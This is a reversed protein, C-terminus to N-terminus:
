ETRLAAVVSLRAARLAPLVSGIAAAVITWAAATATLTWPMHFRVLWGLMAPFQWRVWLIGLATGTLTGLAIGSVGIAVGELLVTAFITSGRLGMARILGLERSRELVSTALTDGIGILLLVLTLIRLVILGSFAQRVRNRFYQLLEATSLIEVRYRKGVSEALRARVVSVAENPQVVVHIRTVNPDAWRSRYADRSVIVAREPEADTVGLVRTQWTGGPSALEIVQGARVGSQRALRSSILAGRGAAVDDVWARSDVDELPLEVIRPERFCAPDFVDLTTQEGLFEVEHRQEGCAFQVGKESRVADIVDQGLPATRYGSAIFPSSIFLDSRYRHSLQDVITNELSEAIIGFMLVAGVGVGITAVVLTTSRMRHVATMAAYDGAPGFVSAWMPRLSVGVIGVVLRAAACGAIALLLTAVIGLVTGGFIAQGAMALAAGASFAIVAPLWTGPAIATERGRIALAAAPPRRALDFAPIAAACTAATLGVALGLAVSAGTLKPVTALGPVGGYNLTFASAVYPALVHGVLVGLPIGIGVGLVGLLLGEKTLEVVVVGPRLGISRLLGVQWNRAEFATRLRSYCVFFGTFATLLGFATTVAFVGAFTRRVISKRLEPEEVTLTRPLRAELRARLGDDSGPAAIVDIQNVKGAAGFFQQAGAIDMILLRGELAQGLGELEM